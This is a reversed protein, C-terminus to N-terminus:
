ARARAGQASASSGPRSSCAITRMSRSWTPWPALRSSISCARFIPSRGRRASRLRGRAAARAARAHPLFGRRRRRDVQESVCRRRRESQRDCRGGATDNGASSSRHRRRPHRARACRRHRRPQRHRQRGDRDAGTIRRAARRRARGVIRLRASVPEARRLHRRARRAHAACARRGRYWDCRRRRFRRRHLHASREGDSRDVARLGRRHRRARRSRDPAFSAARAARRRACRAGCLHACAGSADGGAM